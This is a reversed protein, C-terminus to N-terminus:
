ITIEMKVSKANHLKSSETYKILLKTGTPLSKDLPVSFERQELESYIVANKVTGVLQNNSVTYVEIDGYTSRLGTRNLTVMVSQEKYQSMNEISLNADLEGVRLIVPIAIRLYAKIALAVKNGEQSDQKPKTTPIQHFVIYSRYEGKVTNKPLRLALRVQGAEEPKLTFRRPSYRIFKASATKSGGKSIDVYVGNPQMRKDEFYVNYRTTEPAKNVVSMTASRNQNDLEVRTPVVLLSAFLSHSFLLIPLFILSLSKM